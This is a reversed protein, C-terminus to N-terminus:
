KQRKWIPTFSLKDNVTGDIWRGFQEDSPFLTRGCPQPNKTRSLRPYVRQCTAM